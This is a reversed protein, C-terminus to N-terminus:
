RANEKSIWAGVLVFAELAVLAVCAVIAEKHTTGTRQLEPYEICTALFGPPMGWPGCNLRTPEVRYSLREPERLIGLWHHAEAACTIERAKALAQYEKFRAIADKM